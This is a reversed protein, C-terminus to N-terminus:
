PNACITIRAAPSLAIGQVAAADAVAVQTFLARNALAPVNPVALALSAAGSGNTGLAIVIDPQVAVVGGFIPINAVAAGVVWAIPANPAASGLNLAFAANGVRPEGVAALTPIGSVGALGPSYTALAPCPSGLTYLEVDDITFGGVGDSTTSVNNFQITVAARNDAQASVDLDFTKWAQDNPIAATQVAVGGVLVNCAGNNSNTAWRKFRLRTGFRGTTNIAVSTLSQTGSTTSMREDTASRNVGAVFLGSAAANPDYNRGIPTHRSWTTGFTWNANAVEFNDSFVTAKSGVAVAFSDGVEAPIRYSNGLNNTASIFYRALARTGVVPSTARFTNGSVNTMPLAAFSGTGPDFNLTVATLAGMTTIVDADITFAGGSSQDALPTHTFKIPHFVPRIFHRRLSAKAFVDINPTGNNLNSDNDNAEYADLIHDLMDRPNTGIGEFVATEAIQYGPGAGYTTRAENLLNWAWGMYPQGFTHVAQTTGTLPHTLTNNGNRIGPRTAIYFDTGIDPDDQLYISHVDGVGESPTRPTSGIGGNRSDVSHGYEHAVVSATATNNCTASIRYFNITSGSFTANCSAAVNVRINIPPDIVVMTPVVRKVYDHIAGTYQVANCQATTYEALGANFVINSSVGPTLSVTQSQVPTGSDDTVPGWWQGNNLSITATQPTTGAFPISFDGSADTFAFGVGAVDVRVNAMPLLQPPNAAGHGGPIPSIWGSVNGILPAAAPAAQDANDKGDLGCYHIQSERKREVGNNADIWISWAEPRDRFEGTVKWALRYVNDDGPAIELHPDHHMHGLQPRWGTIKMFETVAQDRDLAPQTSVRLGPIAESGFIALGGDGRNFTFKLYANWVPVGAVLQQYALSLVFRGEGFHTERVQGPVVGLWAGHQEIFRAAAVRADEATQVGPAPMLQAGPGFVRYPVGHAGQWVTWGPGFQQEFRALGSQSDIPVIEQAALTLSCAAATLAFRHLL